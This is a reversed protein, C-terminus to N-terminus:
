AAVRGGRLHSEVDRWSFGMDAVLERERTDLKGSSTRRRAPDHTYELEGADRGLVEVAIALLDKAIGMGRYNPQGEYGGKTYVYHVVLTGRDREACLWGYVLDQRERDRAFFVVAGHELLRSIVTRQGPYYLSSPVRRYAPAAKHSSTWTQYVFGTLGEGSESLAWCAQQGLAAARQLEEADPPVGTSATIVYSIRDSDQM